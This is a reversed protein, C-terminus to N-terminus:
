SEISPDFVILDYNIAGTDGAAIVLPSELLTRDLLFAKQASTNLTGGLTGITPVRGVKGIETITIDSSSSNTILVTYRIVLEGAPNYVYSRTVNGSIGSTIPESLTYSDESEADSGSGVYIGDGANDRLADTKFGYSKGYSWANVYYENGEVSKAKIVGVNVPSSNPIGPITEGDWGYRIANTLRVWKTFM